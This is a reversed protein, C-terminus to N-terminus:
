EAARSKRLAALEGLRDAIQDATTFRNRDKPFCRMCKPYQFHMTRETERFNANM